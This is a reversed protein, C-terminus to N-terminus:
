QQESVCRVFWTIEIEMRPVLEHTELMTGLFSYGVPAPAFPGAVLIQIKGFISSRIKRNQPDRSSPLGPAPLPTRTDHAVPIM